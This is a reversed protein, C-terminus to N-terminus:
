MIEFYIIVWPNWYRNLTDSAYDQTTKWAQHSRDQIDSAYDQTTKWAQHSRDQVESMLEAAKQETAKVYHTHEVQRYSIRLAWVVLAFIAIALIIRKGRSLKVKYKTKSTIKARDVILLSSLPILDEEENEQRGWQLM